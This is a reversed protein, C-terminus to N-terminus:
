TIEFTGTDVTIRRTLCHPLLSCRGGVSDLTCVQRICCEKYRKEFYLPQIFSPFLLFRLPIFILYPNQLGGSLKVVRCTDRPNLIQAPNRVALLVVFLSVPLLESAVYCALIGCNKQKLFFPLSLSARTVQRSSAEAYYTSTHLLPTSNWAFIVFHM